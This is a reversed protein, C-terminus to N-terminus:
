SELNNLSRLTEAALGMLNFLLLLVIPGTLCPLFCPPIVGLVFLAVRRNNWKSQLEIWPEELYPAELTEIAKALTTEPNHECELQWSHTQRQVVTLPVAKKNQWTQEFDRSYENIIDLM